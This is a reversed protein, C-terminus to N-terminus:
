AAADMTAVLRRIAKIAGDRFRVQGSSLLHAVTAIIEQNNEAVERVAQIVDLLTLDHSESMRCTERYLPNMTTFNHTL